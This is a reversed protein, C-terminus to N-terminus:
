VLRSQIKLCFQERPPAIRYLSSLMLSSHSTGIARRLRLTHQDVGDINSYDFDYVMFVVNSSPNKPDLEDFQINARLHDYFPLQIVSIIRSQWHHHFFGKKVLQEVYRKRVNAWNVAYTPKTALSRNNILAEYAPYVSGTLDVAQLEVSIFDKISGNPLVDAVVLDVNGFGKM